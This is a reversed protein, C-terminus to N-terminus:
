TTVIAIPTRPLDALGNRVDTATGLTVHSPIGTAPTRDPTRTDSDPRSDFGDVGIAPGVERGEEPAGSGVVSAPALVPQDAGLVVAAVAGLIAAVELSLGTGSVGPQEGVAVARRDAPRSEGRAGLQRPEGGAERRELELAVVRPRQRAEEDRAARAALAHHLREDPRSGVPSARRAHRDLGIRDVGVHGPAVRLRKVPTSDANRSSPNM